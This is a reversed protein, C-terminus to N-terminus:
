QVGEAGASRRGGAAWLREYADLVPGVAQRVTVREAAARGLEARREPDRALGDLAALLDAPANSAPVVGAGGALVEGGASPPAVCALGCAMAELLSNPMGERRSALCFVDAAHLYPVVDDVAGAFRVRGGLGAAAVAARLGATLDDPRGDGAGALVLQADVGGAVLGAFADLLLDVGKRAVLHGTFAVVLGTGLGLRARASDREGPRPPRFRALDVPVPIVADVPLGTGDVERRMEETLAVHRCRRLLARRLRGLRGGSLATADGLTAWMMTTREGLGALVAAAASDGDMVVQVADAGRYRAALAVATWALAAGHRFPDTSPPGVRRVRVGDRLESRPWSRRNRRTLVDVQWGRRAAELAQRRTQSATGGTAPAYDPVVFVVRRGTDRRRDGAPWPPRRQWPRWTGLTAQLDPFDRHGHRHLLDVAQDWQEDIDYAGSRRVPSDHSITVADVIGMRLDTRSAWRVEVGWGMGLDEPFPLLGTRAAPGLLAVPGQEVYRTLRVRSLPRHATASWNLHSWRGHSPQALDVGGAAAVRVASRLDGALFRVDDDLVALWEAAPFPELSRVLRNLLEFRLGPGTGVTRDELAPAPEDLAWLAARVPGGDGIAAALRHANARRYVGVVAVPLDPGAM